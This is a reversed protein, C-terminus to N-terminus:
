CEVYNIVTLNFDTKFLISIISASKYWYSSKLCDQQPYWYLISKQDHIMEEFIGGM